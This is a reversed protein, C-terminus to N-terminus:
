APAPHRFSRGRGRPRDSTRRRRRGCRRAAERRRAIDLQGDGQHPEANRQEQRVQAADRRHHGRIGEVRGTPVDQRCGRVGRPRRDGDDQQRGDRQQHAPRQREEDPMQNPAIEVDAPASDGHEVGDVGGARRHPAKQGIERQHRAEAQEARLQDGHREVQHGSRARPEDRAASSDDRVTRRRAAGDVYATDATLRVTRDCTRSFGSVSSTRVRDPQLRVSAYPRGALRVGRGVNRERQRHRAKRRHPHLDEPETVQRNQETPEAGHERQQQRDDQDTDTAARERGTEQLRRVRGGPVQNISPCASKTADARRPSAM